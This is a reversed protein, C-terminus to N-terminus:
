RNMFFIFPNQYSIPPIIQTNVKTPHTRGWLLINEAVERLHQIQAELDQKILNLKQNKGSIEKEKQRGLDLVEKEDIRIVPANIKM